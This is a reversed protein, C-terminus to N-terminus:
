LFLTLIIDPINQEATEAKCFQKKERVEYFDM